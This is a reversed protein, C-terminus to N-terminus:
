MFITRFLTAMGVRGVKVRNYKKRILKSNRQSHMIAYSRSM